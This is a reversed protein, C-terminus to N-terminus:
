DKKSVYTALKKRSIILLGFIIFLEGVYSVHPMHGGTNPLKKKGDELVKMKKEQAVELVKQKDGVTPSELRTEERSEETKNEKGKLVKQKEGVIPSEMKNEEKSVKAKELSAEDELKGVEEWIEGIEKEQGEGLVKQKEGVVPSELRNEEKSVKAKEPMIPSELKGVEEWSGETEKEQGEGLVKQKEGVVPSELRNKEEIIKAKEPSAEDELKGVEEWSGETEKEQGEGLVKQKEGVVPSELRNKEEIIKAKEPSAEDELKGVEEWSEGTEKEQGEGLVKQKEGVIPSELRNEEKSVKAKEPIIPNELKGVEEWTKATIKEQAKEYREGRAGGDATFNEVKVIQADSTPNEKSVQYVISYKNKFYQLTKADEKISAGYFIAFRNSSAKDKNFLVKFTTDDIFNFTGYGKQKFESVTLYSRETGSDVMIYFSDKNYTQGGQLSDSLNIDKSLTERNYNVTVYWLIEGPKDIQINGGKYAFPGKHESRHEGDNSPGSITITQMEVNTGLNTQIEKKKNMEVNEAQVSITFYGRIREHTGVKENFKCQATGSTVECVGFDDLRITGTFAKLEPPLTLTLSDGPQIKYNEKESFKVTIKTREGHHLENKDIKISDIIGFSKLDQAKVIVPILNQMVIIALILLASFRKKSHISM